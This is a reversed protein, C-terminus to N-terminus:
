TAAITRSGETTRARYSASPSTVTASLGYTDEGPTDIVATGEMTVRPM